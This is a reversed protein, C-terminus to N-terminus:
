LQLLDVLSGTYHLRGHGERGVLMLAEYCSHRIGITGDEWEIVLEAPAAGYHIMYTVTAVRANKDSVVDGLDPKQGTAYRKM